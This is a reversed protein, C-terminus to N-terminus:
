KIGAVQKIIGDEEVNFSGCEPCRVPLFDFLKIKKVGNRGRELLETTSAPLAKLAHCTKTIWEM